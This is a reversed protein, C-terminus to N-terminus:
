AQILLAQHHDMKWLQPQGCIEQALQGFKLAVLLLQSCWVLIGTFSLSLACVSM